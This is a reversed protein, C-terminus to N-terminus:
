LEVFLDDLTLNNQVLQMCYKNNVLGYTTIFILQVSKRTKTEETFFNIKKILEDAYKKDITFPSNYFKIECINIVNDDRDILLDIQAGNKKNKHTWSGHFSNIGAIKLKEKIEDVHKICLTEFCYGSWIKFSQQSFLKNLIAGKSPKTNAIFRIYFMTYEDTLRYLTDKTGKYPLYSEIFGSEELETLTKTLTGGSSIKSKAVIENRTLGKRVSSLVKIIAEHNEFQDFLSAFISEFENRLAGEKRFCLRDVAQTLSEGVKIKELYHPIGGLILYLQVIDYRTFKIKNNRLMQETEFLTFPQLRINNTLRNYLGGKNKIIKQIMYSAASGCIVIVLDDRKSAYSNWFNDFAALFNSKPTDFWPFEDFFIVKKKKSRITNIYLSLAYFAELWNTPKFARKKKLLLTHHFNILQEKLGGKHIGSIEFVIENKYINRVLFTKGVRRRGYIALLESYKSQLAEKLIEIEINRGIIKM